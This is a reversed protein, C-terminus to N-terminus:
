DKHEYYVDKGVLPRYIIRIRGDEMKSNVYLEYEEKKEPHDSNEQFSHWRTEKRAGLHAILAKATILRDRLEYIQLLEDASQARM